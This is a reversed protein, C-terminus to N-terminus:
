LGLEHDAHPRQDPLKQPPLVQVLFFVHEEDAVRSGALRVQDAGQGEGSAGLASASAEKRGRIQYGLEHLAPFFFPKLPQVFLQLSEMEQHNIFQSINGEGLRPGFQEELDDAPGILM